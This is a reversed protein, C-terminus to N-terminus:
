HADSWPRSPMGGGAGKKGHSLFEAITGSDVNKM